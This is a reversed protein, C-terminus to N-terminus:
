ILIVSVREPELKFSLPCPVDPVSLDERRSEMFLQLHFHLPNGQTNASAGCGLISNRKGIAIRHFSSPKKVTEESYNLAKGFPKEIMYCPQDSIREILIKVVHFIM